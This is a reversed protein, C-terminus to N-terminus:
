NQRSNDPSCCLGERPERSAKWSFMFWFSGRVTGPVCNCSLLRASWNPKVLFRKESPCPPWAPSQVLVPTPPHPPDSNCMRAPVDRGKGMRLFLGGPTLYEPM